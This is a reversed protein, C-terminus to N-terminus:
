AVCKDAEFGKAEAEEKSNFWLQNIKSIRLAWDCKPSHFKNANKSAVFKGPTFTKEAKAEPKKAEKEDKIELKDIILHYDSLKEYYGKPSDETVQKAGKLNFLSILIGIISFFIATLHETDFTRKLVSIFLINILLLVLIAGLLTWGWQKGHYIFFMSFALFFMFVLLLMLELVFALGHLDFVILILSIIAFLLVIIMAFYSVKIKEM